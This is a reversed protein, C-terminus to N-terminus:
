LGTFWAINSLKSSPFVTKGLIMGKGSSVVLVEASIQSFDIGLDAGVNVLMLLHESAAWGCNFAVRCVSGRLGRRQGDTECDSQSYFVGPLWTHLM